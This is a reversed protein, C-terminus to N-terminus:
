GAQGIFFFLFGLLTILLVWGLITRLSPIPGYRLVKFGLPILAICLGVTAVVSFPTTGKLVGLPLASMLGLAITRLLPLTGSRYAGIALVIWGLLIALNFISFLHFAGYSDAVIKTALEMNQNRVLQFALHDVGAHFTRALLGFITLVGGWLAWGPKTTGILKALTIVALSMLVNGANFTSYSALMLKPYEKFAELQHPFFFDFPLRLLVGTLLLLPGLIMATGGVWRGPFWAGEANSENSVNANM